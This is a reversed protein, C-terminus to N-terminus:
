GRRRFSRLFDDPTPEAPRPPESRGGAAMIPASTPKSRAAREADYASDEPPRWDDRGFSKAAEWANREEFM